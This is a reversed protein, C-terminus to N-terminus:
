KIFKSKFRNSLRIPNKTQREFNGGAGINHEADYHNEKDCERKAAANTFLGGGSSMRGLSHAKEMQVQYGKEGKEVKRLDAPVNEDCRLGDMTYVNRPKLVRKSIKNIMRSITSKREGKKGHHKHLDMADAKAHCATPMAVTPGSLLTMAAEEDAYLNRTSSGPELNLTAVTM